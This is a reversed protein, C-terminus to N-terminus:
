EIVATRLHILADKLGIYHLHALLNEAGKVRLPNKQEIRYDIYDNWAEGFDLNKFLPYEEVEYVTSYRPYTKHLTLEVEQGCHPCNFKM